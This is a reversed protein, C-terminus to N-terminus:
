SVESFMGLPDASGSVHIMRVPVGRHREPWKMLQRERFRRSFKPNILCNTETPHIGRHRRAGNEGRSDDGPLRSVSGCIGTHTAPRHGHLPDGWRGVILRRRCGTHACAPVREPEGPQDNSGQQKSGFTGAAGARPGPSSALRARGRCGM